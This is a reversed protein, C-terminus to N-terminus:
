NSDYAWGLQQGSADEVGALPGRDEQVGHGDRTSLWEVRMPDDDERKRRRSRRSRGYLAPDCTPRESTYFRNADATRLKDVTNYANLRIRTSVPGPLPLNQLNEDVPVRMEQKTTVLGQLIVLVRSGM